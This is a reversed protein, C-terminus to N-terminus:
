FVDISFRFFSFCLYIYSICINVAVYSESINDNTLLSYMGNRMEEELHDYMDRIAFEVHMPITPKSRLYRQFFVLFEGLKKKNSGSVFFEGVANILEVVLQIRFSDGPPDIDIPIMPDFRSPDGSFLALNKLIAHNPNGNSKDTNITKSGSLSAGIFHSLAFNTYGMRNGNKFISTFRSNSNNGNNSSSSSTMSSASSSSSNTATNMGLSSTLSGSTMLDKSYGYHIFSYLMFLLTKASVVKFNFLEGLLRTIGIMRQPDRKYPSDLGRFIEEQICDLLFACIGPRIANIGSLLDAIREICSYKFRAQRMVCKVIFSEVANGNSNSMTQDLMEQPPQNFPLRSFSQILADIDCKQRGLCEFIM